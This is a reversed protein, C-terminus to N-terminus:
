RKDPRWNLSDRWRIKFYRWAALSGVGVLVYIMLVVDWQWGNRYFGFIAAAILIIGINRFNGIMAKRQEYRAREVDRVIKVM